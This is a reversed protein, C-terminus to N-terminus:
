ESGTRKETEPRRMRTLFREYEEPTFDMPRTYAPDVGCVRPEVTDAQNEGTAPSLPTFQEGERRFPEYVSQLQEWLSPLIEEVTLGEPKEVFAIDFNALPDQAQEIEEATGLAIVTAKRDPRGEATLWDSVREPPFAKLDFVLIRGSKVEEPSTYRDVLVLDGARLEDGVAETYYESSKRGSRARRSIMEAAAM